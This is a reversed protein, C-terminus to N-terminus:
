ALQLGPKGMLSQYQRKKEENLLASNDLGTNSKIVMPVKEEFIKGHKKELVCIAEEIYKRM